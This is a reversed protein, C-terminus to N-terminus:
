TSSSRSQPDFSPQHNQPTQASTHRQSRAVWDWTRQSMYCLPVHIMFHSNSPVHISEVPKEQQQVLMSTCKSEEYTAAQSNKVHCTINSLCVGVCALLMVVWLSMAHRAMCHMGTPADCDQMVGHKNTVPQICKFAIHLDGAFTLGTSCTYALGCIISSFTVIIQLLHPLLHAENLCPVPM